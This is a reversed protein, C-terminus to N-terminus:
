NAPNNKDLFAVSAALMQERTESRSLWHDESDLKTFTVPKGAARLASDMDESQGIPVITDNTGHILLIPIDAQPAHALPSIESLKPDDYGEVGMFRSWFRLAISDGWLQRDRQWSLLGHPDSVGAVSVACRYVGRDLTAGALAAYGGYSGGVICVRKPDIIGQAALYRVGDSLDTQMKRGWQGFGAALHEWGLGASGRFQPQLVAYGRSAFAQAWWDFGPEDQATPGGHALVILPLDKAARGRPLTLYAPIKMGDAAPYTVYKVDSVDTRGIGEFAAGILKALGTNLDILEYECGSSTGDVRVVGRKRDMSWSVLHVTEGSFAQAVSNWAEQDTKNFFTYHIGSDITVHGIVRGTRDDVFPYELAAVPDSLKTVSGDALSVEEVVRKGGDILRVILSHGDASLGQIEPIDIPAVLDFTKAWHDKVMVNLVWHKDGESYEESAVANGSGDVTWGEALGTGDELIKIRNLAFDADGIDIAFLSLRGHTLVSHEAEVFVITRGNIIRSVPRSYIVNLSMRAGILLPHLTKSSVTFIQAVSREGKFGFLEPALATTSATILINDNDAWSVDRVKITGLNIGAVVKASDIGYVVVTTDGQFGTVYALEKGDPSITLNDLTPLRGYAELPAGISTSVSALGFLGLWLLIRYRQM